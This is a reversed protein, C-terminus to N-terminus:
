KKEIPKQMRTWAREYQPAAQVVVELEEASKLPFDAHRLLERALFIVDAEDKELIENAQHSDTIL